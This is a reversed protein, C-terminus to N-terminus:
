TRTRPAGSAERMRQSWQWLGTTVSPPLRAGLQRAALVIQGRHHGEHAVLYALVHGVDLPLNRWVYRSTAPIRGGNDLGLRLLTEVAGSSQSLATILQRRTVTRRDVADPVPIGHPLGLTKVWTCRANHLHGAIMGITKRPIGPVPQNWLNEPLHDVLFVTTQHNTRWASLLSDALDTM